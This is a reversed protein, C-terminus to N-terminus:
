KSVLQSQATTWWKQWRNRDVGKLKPTWFMEILSKIQSLKHYLWLFAFVKGCRYLRLCIECFIPSLVFLISFLLNHIRSCVSLSLFYWCTKFWCIVSPSDFRLPAFHQPGHAKGPHARAPCPIATLTAVRARPLVQQSDLPALPGGPWRSCRGPSVRIRVGPNRSRPISSSPTPVNALDGGAGAAAAWWVLWKEMSRVHTSLVGRM